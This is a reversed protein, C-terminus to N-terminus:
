VSQAVLAWMRGQVHCKHQESDYVINRGVYERKGVCLCWELPLLYSINLVVVFVRVVFVTDTVLAKNYLLILVVFHGADPAHFTVLSLTIDYVLLTRSTTHILTKRCDSDHLHM